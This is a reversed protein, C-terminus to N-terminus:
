KIGSEYNQAFEFDEMDFDEELYAAQVQQFSVYGLIVATFFSTRM